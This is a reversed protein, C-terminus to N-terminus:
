EALKSWQPTDDASTGYYADWCWAYDWVTRFVALSVVLVWRYVAVPKAADAANLAVMVTILAFVAVFNIIAWKQEAPRETREGIKRVVPPSFALYAGFAWLADFALLGTFTYAFEEPRRILVALGLLGCSEIFLLSWDVMLAGARPHGSGTQLYAVDLHRLAGHYIPVLTVLYAVFYPLGDLHIPVAASADVLKNIAVSLAV